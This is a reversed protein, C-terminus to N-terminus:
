SESARKKHAACKGSPGSAAANMMAAPTKIMAHGQAIPRAVGTAIMAPELAAACRPM